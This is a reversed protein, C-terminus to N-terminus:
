ESSAMENATGYRYVFAEAGDVKVSLRGEAENAAFAIRPAVGESATRVPGSSYHGDNERDTARGM